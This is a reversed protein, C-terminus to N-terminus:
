STVGIARIDDVRPFTTSIVDSTGNSSDSLLVIKLQMSDYTDYEIMSSSYYRVVNDNPFNNFAQLPMGLADVTTNGVRGIFDIKMGDGVLTASKIPTNITISTDTVVSNVVLVQYNDPFLPSYIKILDDPWLRYSTNAIFLTGDGTLTTTTNNTVVVSGTVKFNTQPSHKMGFSMEIYDNLNTSSSYINGTRLELETWDKDDFAESDTSNHIRAYTKVDTNIPRYATCFMVLDEAFRENNFNIKPTIHKADASGYNTNEGTADNNISYRFFVFDTKNPSLSAFDNNSIGGIEIIGSGPYTNAPVLFSSEDLITFENSKSPVISNFQGGLKNKVNMRVKRKQAAIDNKVLYAVGLFTVGPSKYVYYPNTYNATSIPTSLNKISSKPVIEAVEMNIVTANAFYSPIGSSGGFEAVYTTSVTPTMVAGSGGSTNSSANTVSSTTSNSVVFRVNGTNVFGCGTNTLYIASLAGTGTTVINAIAPYGKKVLNNNEFGFVTIFDANNYTTGITNVTISTIMNNVFRTSSNANSNTLVLLNQSSKKEAAGNYKKNFAKTTGMWDVQGVPSKLFKAATNTFAVPSDVQLITNSEISVVKLISTKKKGATPDDDSIIVIYENGNESYINNWNFAAGNPLTSNAVIVTNGATVKIKASNSQGGPYVINNQYVKEGGVIGSIFSNKKDYLIYEHEPAQISFMIGNSNYSVNAYKIDEPTRIITTNTISANSVPVNNISFRAAYVKFKLDTDSLSKWAANVNQNAVGTALVSVFYDGVYKGSPGPSTKNTGVLPDGKKSTWLVFDENGDFKLVLAKLKDTACFVPTKFRFTTKKSADTSTVIDNFTMRSANNLINGSIIDNLIPKKDADVDCLYMTVGPNNIGSKNNNAKPKQSFYVDIATIGVTKANKVVSSDIFFTQITNLLFNSM